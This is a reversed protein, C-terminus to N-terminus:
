KMSRPAPASMSAAPRSTWSSFRRVAAFDVQRDGGEAPQRRVAQRGAPRAPGQRRAQRIGAEAFNQVARPWVWGNPAVRDFNGLALNEGITQDLVLAKRRATRRCSCSAPRSPRVGPREAHGAQRRRPGHRILGSRRRNHGAGARNPRRRDARRHRPDRRGQGLLQCRQFHPRAVVSQRGRAARRAARSSLPPFMREVSRGVMQEVVTRVPVDAREHRAVIRGDRM